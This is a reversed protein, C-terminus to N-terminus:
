LIWFESMFYRNVIDFLKFNKNYSRKSDNKKRVTICIM